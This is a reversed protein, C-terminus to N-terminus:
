RYVDYTTHAAVSSVNQLATVVDDIAHNELFTSMLTNVTLPQDRLSTTIRGITPVTAVGEVTVEERFGHGCM